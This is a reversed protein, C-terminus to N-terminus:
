PSTAASEEARRAGAGIVRSGIPQTRHMRLVLRDSFFYAGLNFLVAIAVFTMASGPAFYSAAGVALTSLVGLFLITKM